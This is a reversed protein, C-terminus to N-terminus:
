KFKELFFALEEKSLFSAKKEEVEITPIINNDMPNDKLEDIFVACKFIMGAYIILRKYRKPSSDSWDNTYQQWM